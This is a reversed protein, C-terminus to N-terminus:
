LNKIKLYKNKYKLYKSFYKKDDRLSADKIMEYLMNSLATEGKYSTLGKRNMFHELYKGTKSSSLIFELFEKEKIESLDSDLITDYVDFMIKELNDSFNIGRYRFMHIFEKYSKLRELYNERDNIIDRYQNLIENFFDLVDVHPKRENKLNEIAILFIKFREDTYFNIPKNILKYFTYNSLLFIELIFDAFKNKYFNKIKLTSDLNISANINKLLTILNKIDGKVKYKSKADLIMKEVGILELDKTILNKIEDTVIVSGDFFIPTDSLLFYFDESDFNITIYIGKFELTIM